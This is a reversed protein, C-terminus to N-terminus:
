GFRANVNEGGFVSPVRWDAAPGGDGSYGQFASGADPTANSFEVSRSMPVSLNIVQGAGLSTLVWGRGNINYELQGSGTGPNTLTMTVATAFRGQAKIWDFFTFTYPSATGGASIDADWTDFEYGGGPLATITVSTGNTLSAHSYICNWDSCTRTEAGWQIQLQNLGSYQPNDVEISGAGAVGALAFVYTVFCLFAIASAGKWSTRRVM